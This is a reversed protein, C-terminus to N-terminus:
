VYHDLIVFSSLVLAEVALHGVCLGAFFEIIVVGKFYQNASQLLNAAETGHGNASHFM